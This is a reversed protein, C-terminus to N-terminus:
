RKCVFLQVCQSLNNKDKISEIITVNFFANTYFKQVNYTATKTHSNINSTSSLLYVTFKFYQRSFWQRANEKCLSIKFRINSSFISSLKKYKSKRMISSFSECYSLPQSRNSQFCEWDQSSLKSLLTNFILLVAPRM